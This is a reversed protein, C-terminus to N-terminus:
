ITSEELVLLSGEDTFPRVTGVIFSPEGFAKLREQAELVRREPVALVLGGSTQPDFALIARVDYPNCRVSTFPAAHNRNAYAGGPILGIDAFGEVGLMFPLSGLSIHVSVRSGRAMELLHGGLGFGTIDTASALRMARIVEASHANLHTTWRYMESEDEATALGGKIATSLVGTGLPKTLILVDGVCLGDNRAISDPAVVGTVSLGFRLESGSLTHGGALVAGAEQVKEMSGLLIESLMEEPVSPPFSLINMVSWPSGGMAYIDSLANAAASRGFDRPSNGLPALIDVTQLLAMGVPPALV